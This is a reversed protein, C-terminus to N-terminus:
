IPFRETFPSTVTSNEPEASGGDTEASPALPHKSYLGESAIRVGNSSVRSVLIRFAIIVELGCTHTVALPFAPVVNANSVQVTSRLNPPLVSAQLVQLGHPVPLAPKSNSQELTSKVLNIRPGVAVGAVLRGANGQIEIQPTQFQFGAHELL